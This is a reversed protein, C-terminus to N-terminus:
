IYRNNTYKTYQQPVCLRVLKIKYEPFMKLLVSERKPMRWAFCRYVFLDCIGGDFSIDRQVCVEGM